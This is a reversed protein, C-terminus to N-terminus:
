IIGKRIAKAVAQTGSAVHLKQYINRLHSDITHHSLCLEDAIKKHRAGTEMLKLIEVERARLGYDLGTELRAFHRSVKRAVPPPMLMGGRHAARIALVLEDIRPPKVLYGSAGARLAKFIVDTADSGTLMVIEIEALRRKLRFTGELGDIREAGNCDRLTIDMLVVDPTDHPAVVDLADFMEECSPFTHACRLDSVEDILAAYDRRQQDNDEVIWVDIASRNMSM